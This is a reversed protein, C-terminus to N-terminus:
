PKKQVSSWTLLNFLLKQERGQMNCSDSPLHHLRVKNLVAGSPPSHTVDNIPWSM